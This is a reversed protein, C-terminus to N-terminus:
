RVPPRAPASAAGPSVPARDTRATRATRAARWWPEVTPPAHPEVPQGAMPVVVSVGARRAGALLREAPEWWDHFSLNFTGWHIPVFVGGRVMAHAKLAEEPNLHVAQWAPNYAGIPMLSADFPGEREGIEAFGDFMGTDGGFFVRHRPGRIAFSAWLTRNRDRLSRGSFHRAPTATFTIGSPSQWREWWDLEVIQRDPVRWRELHAGVGLPVVFPVGTRALAVITQHDLHDYHDHSIVVADLKPLAELALPVPHFRAPGVHSSPSVRKSWVPDTLVRAGDIEVLASAHGMWTIRLGSAPAAVLAAATNAGVPLPLKPVRIEGGRLWKKLMDSPPSDIGAPTPVNNFFTDGNHNPSALARARREGTLNGGLAAWRVLGTVAVVALATVLLHM